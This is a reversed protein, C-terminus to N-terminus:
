SCIIWLQFLKLVACKFNECFSKEHSIFLIQVTASLFTKVPCVEGYIIVHYYSM